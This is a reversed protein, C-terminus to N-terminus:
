NPAQPDWASKTHASGSYNRAEQVPHSSSHWKVHGDVYAVNIGKFHRGNAYDKRAAEGNAANSFGDNADTMVGNFQETGPIFSPGVADLTWDQRNTISGSDMLMYTGAPAVVSALAVPPLASSLVYVNAGYHGEKANEPAGSQVPFSSSPCFFVKTSKHYAYALQPWFWNGGSWIGGPMTPYTADAMVVMPFKEDYDQTYQMIALGQQKLNSQCSSRRANERARAFVPFLIAALIAIIAIVVLLEILTFGHVQYKKRGLSMSM